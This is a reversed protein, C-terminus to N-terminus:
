ALVVGGLPAARCPAPCHLVTCYRTHEVVCGTAMACHDVAVAQIRLGAADLDARLAQVAENDAGAGPCLALASVFRYRGFGLHM